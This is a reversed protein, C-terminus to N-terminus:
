AAHRMAESVHRVIPNVPATAIWLDRVRPAGSILPIYDDIAGLSEAGWYGEIGEMFEKSVIYKHELQKCADCIRSTTNMTDGSMALDKKIVGIEGVMVEGVHIGVRFEPVINFERRFM